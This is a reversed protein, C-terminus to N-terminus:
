GGIYISRSPNGRAAQMAETRVADRSRSSAIRTHEVFESNHGLQGNAYALELEARVDARTKTSVVNSHDVYAGNDAAFASGTAAFVAIAAITQKANM